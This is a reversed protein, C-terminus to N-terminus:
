SLQKHLSGPSRSWDFCHDSKPADSAMYLTAPICKDTLTQTRWFITVTTFCSCRNSHDLLSSRFMSSMAWKSPLYDNSAESEFNTPISISVDEGKLPSEIITLTVRTQHNMSVTKGGYPHSSVSWQYRLAKFLTGKALVYVYKYWAM